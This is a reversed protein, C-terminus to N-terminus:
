NIFIKKYITFTIQTAPQTKQPYTKQKITQVSNIIFTITHSNKRRKIIQGDLESAGADEEQLLGRIIAKRQTTVPKIITQQRHPIAEKHQM